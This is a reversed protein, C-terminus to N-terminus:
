RNWALRRASQRMRPLAKTVKAMNAMSGKGIPWTVKRLCSERAVKALLKRKNAPLKRPDLTNKFGKLMETQTQVAGRKEEESQRLREADRKKAAEHATVQAGSYTQNIFGEVKSMRGCNIVLKRPSHCCDQM